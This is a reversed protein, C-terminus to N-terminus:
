RECINILKSYVLKSINIKREKKYQEVLVAGLGAFFATSISSGSVKVYNNDLSTTYLKKNPLYFDVNKKIKENENKNKTLFGVSFTEKYRAPYDIKENEGSAAFICIDHNRAKKIADKLIMYDYQTGMAIVIIDVEKVIAWLVAAVLANFSCQGKNDVVKGFLLKVHPAVGVITKKNNAKIIGSIMTAHGNNDNINNNNECFSIREGEIIIDKHHPCGSDLIAIKVNRGTCISNIGYLSPSYIVSKPVIKVISKKYKKELKIIEPVIEINMFKRM